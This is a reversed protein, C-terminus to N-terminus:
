FETSLRASFSNASKGTFEKDGAIDQQKDHRYELAVSTHRWVKVTYDVIWRYKVGGFLVTAGSINGADANTRQYGFGFTSAYSGTNFDYNAYIDWAYPETDSGRLDSNTDVWNAYIGFPEMSLSGHLAYASVNPFVASSPSRINAIADVDSVRRIWGGDLRYTWTSDFGSLGLNFGWNRVKNLGGDRVGDDPDTAGNFGYVSGYVVNNSGEFPSVFGLQVATARAKSLQKTLSDSITYRQYVGFPVYYKGAQFYVPSQSFDSLRLYVEDFSTRDANISNSGRKDGMLKNGFYAFNIYGQVWNSPNFSFMLNANSVNINTYSEDSGFLTVPYTGGIPPSPTVLPGPTMSSWTFDVNVLGNVTLYKGLAYGSVDYVRASNTNVISNAHDVFANHGQVGNAFAPASAVGLAIMSAVIPKLRM